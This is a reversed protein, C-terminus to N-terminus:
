YEVEASPAVPPEEEIRKWAACCGRAHVEAHLESGEGASVQKCMGTHSAYTAEFFRCTDCSTGGPALELGSHQPDVYEIDEHDMWKKMPKGYVHYGCTHQSSVHVKPNHIVCQNTEVWMMCNKCSKRSANPNPHAYLVGWTEPAPALLEGTDASYGYHMEDIIRLPDKGRVAQEILDTARSM